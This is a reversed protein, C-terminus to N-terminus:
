CKLKKARSISTPQREHTSVPPQLDPAVAPWTPASECWVQRGATPSCLFEGHQIQMKTNRSGPGKAGASGWSNKPFSKRQPQLM